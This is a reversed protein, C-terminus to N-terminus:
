IYVCKYIADRNISNLRFFLMLDSTITSILSCKLPAETYPGEKNKVIVKTRGCIDQMTLFMVEKFRKVPFSVCVVHWM